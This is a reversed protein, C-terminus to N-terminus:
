SHKRVGAKGRATYGPGKDKGSWLRPQKGIDKRVM